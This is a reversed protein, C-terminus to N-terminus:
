ESITPVRPSKYRQLNLQSDTDVLAIALDHNIYANM